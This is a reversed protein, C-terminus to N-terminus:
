GKALRWRGGAQEVRWREGDGPEIRVPTAQDPLQLALVTSAGCQEHTLTMRPQLEFVREDLTYRVTAPGRNAIEFRIRLAQPRAFLQVAYFRGSKASRAIGVGTETLAPNMLNAHHPPSDRWGKVFDEAMEATRVGASNFLFAINEAVMCHAYGQAQTRQVPQRGDARHGYQDTRAMFDAFGQAAADLQANRAVQQLSAGRRLRNIGDLIRKEAEPLAPVLPAGAASAAVPLVLLVLLSRRRLRILCTMAPMM